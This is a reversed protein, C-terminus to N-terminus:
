PMIMLSYKTIGSINLLIWGPYSKGRDSLCIIFCDSNMKQCSRKATKLASKIPVCILRSTGTHCLLVKKRLTKLSRKLVASIRALLVSPHYPKAIFDDAGLLMSNVETITDNQSTLVIIPIDMTARLEQCIAHGDAGPLHLDLLVLDPNARRIVEATQDFQEIVATEYLSNRLLMDLEDRITKEDEVIAIKM